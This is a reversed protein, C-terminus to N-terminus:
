EGCGIEGGAGVGPTVCCRRRRDGGCLEVVMWLGGESKITVM